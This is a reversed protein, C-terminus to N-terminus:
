TLTDLLVKAEQLDQTGFGETFWGYIESLLQHAQQRKGQQQWLRALSVTARLEWAKAQQQRAITIAQQFCAEADEQPPLSFSDPTTKQPRPGAVKAQPRTTVRSVPRQASVQRLTLEGKLRHLEAEYWREGTGHVIALAETVLRVGEEAQGMTRQAAALLLLHYPKHLEAGTAQFASMGQRLQDIGVQGHGQEALAYGGLITGWAGLFLFGQDRALASVADARMQAAHGERRLQHLWAAFFSAEAHSTSHALEQSRTLAEHMRELAQDAYGLVWSALAVIIRSFVEPDQGPLTTPSDSEQLASLAISQEASARAPAPEGRFFLVGGLVSHAEVLLAPDHVKQALTLLQQGLEHATQVQAQLLSVVCLGRLTWFLQPTEPVQGCLARARSFAHAVEPAAYGRTAQLATGLALQLTLEHQAREPTEPLATLLELGKALHTSAERYAYRGGAREGAQGFYQVARRYDRSREFHVALATAIEGVQSGYAAEEREGIRQHLHARRGPTVQAYTVEQYLAHLFAYRSVETGDPWEDRGTARLFQGRRALGTCREEV